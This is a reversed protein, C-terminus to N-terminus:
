KEEDEGYKMKNYCAYFDQGWALRVQAATEPFQCHYIDGALAAYDLPIGEARLLQILGRLYHSLATISNATAAANLRRLIRKMEDEDTALRGVASGFRIDERHMPETPLEHGQQHLAFLTLATYVAWEERSPQGNRGYMKEPLDLLFEGWLQPVEGPLHGVGRRLNALAAKQGGPNPNKLIRNIIKATVAQVEKRTTAM